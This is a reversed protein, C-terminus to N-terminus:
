LTTHVILARNVTQKSISGNDPVIVLVYIRESDGRVSRRLNHVYGYNAM